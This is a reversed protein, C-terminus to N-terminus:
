NSGLTRLMSKAESAHAGNPDLQLYKNLADATGPAASGKGNENKASKYLASGKFFWADPKSPDAAVSQDCAAAAEELKNYNFEVACLNYYGVAPNTAKEAAKRFSAIAEDTKGLQIYANGQATLMQGIGAAARAPDPNPNRPDSPATGSVISQAVQVGREYAQVADGYEQSHGQADGLVKFFEWRTTEPNAELIKKLAVEAEGWKQAQMATQAQTVLANLSAVTANEASMAASQEKASRAAEAGASGGSAEPKSLDIMLSSNGDVMQARKTYLVGVKPDVVEVTYSDPMMGLSVYEGKKDTKTKYQKNTQPNTFVVQLNPAPAKDQTVKGTITVSLAGASM